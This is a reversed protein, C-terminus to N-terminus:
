RQARPPAHGMMVCCKDLLAPPFASKSSRSVGDMRVSFLFYTSLIFAPSVEYPQSPSCGNYPYPPCTNLPACSGDLCLEQGQECPNPACTGSSDACSWDPCSNSRILYLQQLKGDQNTRLVDLFSIVTVRRVDACDMGANFLAM